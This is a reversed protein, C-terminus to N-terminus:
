FSHRLGVAIISPDEGAVGAARAASNAYNGVTSASENTVRDYLAYVNTRKSLNHQVGVTFAKHDTTGSQGARRDEYNRFSTFASYSGGFPVNAHIGQSLYKASETSVNTTLNTSTVKGNVMNYTVQAMGFDYSIGLGDHKIKGSTAAVANTGLSILQATITGTPTVGSVATYDAVTTSV